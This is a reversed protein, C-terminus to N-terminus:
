SLDAIPDLPEPEEPAVPLNEAEALSELNSAGHEDLEQAIKAPSVGGEALRVMVHLIFDGHRDLVYQVLSGPLGAAHARDILEPLIM